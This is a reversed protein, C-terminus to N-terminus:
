VKMTTLSFLSLSSVKMTTLSSLSLSSVKMTVMVKKIKQPCRGRADTPMARKLRRRSHRLGVGVLALLHNISVTVTTRGKILSVFFAAPDIFGKFRM